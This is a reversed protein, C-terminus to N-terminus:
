RRKPATLVSRYAHFRSRCLPSCFKRSPTGPSSGPMRLRSPRLRGPGPRRFLVPLRAM